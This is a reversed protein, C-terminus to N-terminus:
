WPQVCKNLLQFWKALLGLSGPSTVGERRSEGDDPIEAVHRQVVVRVGNFATLTLM